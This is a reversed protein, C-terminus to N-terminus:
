LECRRVLSSSPRYPIVSRSTQPLCPPYSRLVPGVSRCTRSGVYSQVWITQQSTEPWDLFGPSHEYNYLQSRPRLKWGFDDSISGTVVGDSHRLGSEVIRLVLLRDGGVIVVGCQAVEACLEMGLDRREKLFVELRFPQFGSLGSGAIGESDDLFGEVSVLLGGGRGGSFGCGDRVIGREV